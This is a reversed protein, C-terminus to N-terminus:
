TTYAMWKNTWEHSVDGDGNADVTSWETAMLAIGNDLATQAIDILGQQHWKDNAYFHITYAINDFKTIPDESAEHVFQSWTPTGVIVLNDPDHKRIEGIIDEAFPKIDNSWSVQLPENYVEWIINDHHGYHEAMHSFFERAQNMYQPLDHTHFDVIVYMDNAIAAEVVTKVRNVNTWFDEAAGGRGEVGMAARVLGSNWDNKFHSVTDATWYHEAGWTTNSWFFSPGAFAKGEQGGTLIRNGSVSLPEVAYASNLLATSVALGLAVRKFLKSTKNNSNM